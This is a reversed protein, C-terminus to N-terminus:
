LSMLAKDTKSVVMAESRLIIGLVYYAAGSSMQVIFLHTPLHAPACPREEVITLCICKVWSLHPLFSLMSIDSKGLGDITLRPRLVLVGSGM